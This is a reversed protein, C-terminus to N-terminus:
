AKSEEKEGEGNEEAPTEEIPDHPPDADGVPLRPEDEEHTTGSM